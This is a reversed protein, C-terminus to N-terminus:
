NNQSIMVKHKNIPRKESITFTKSYLIKWTKAIGAVLPITLNTDSSTQSSTINFLDNITPNQGTQTAPTAIRRQIILMRYGATRQHSVDPNTANYDDSYEAIFRATINKCRNYNGTIDGTADAEDDGTYTGSWPHISIYSYNDALTANTFTHEFNIFKTLVEPRNARAVASIRKNLKAIQYAQSKASRNAFIRTTSLKGRRKSYKRYRGYRPM